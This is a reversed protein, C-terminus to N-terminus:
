SIGGSKDKPIMVVSNEDHNYAIIIDTKKNKLLIKKVFDSTTQKDDSISIFCGSIEPSGADQKLKEDDPSLVKEFVIDFDGSRNNLNSGSLFALVNPKNLKPINDEILRKIELICPNSFYVKNVKSNQYQKNLHLSFFNEHGTEAPPGLAWNYMDDLSFFQKSVDSNNMTGDAKYTFIGTEWKETYPDIVLAVMRQKKDIGSFDTQVSLDYDSLFIKLGPHSHFWAVMVLEKNDKQKRNELTKQLKVSIKAGFNLKYRSFSADDGPEIFDELSIDFKEPDNPNTDWRGILYGGTENATTDTDVAKVSDEFFRYTKIICNREFYLKKVRTDDWEDALDLELFDIGAKQRVEFLGKGKFQSNQTHTITIGGSSSSKTGNVVTTTVPKINKAKLAKAKIAKYYVRAGFGLIVLMIVLLTLYLYPFAKTPWEEIEASLYRVGPKLELLKKEVDQKSDLDADFEYIALEKSKEAETTSDNIQLELIKDYIIDAKNLYKNKTSEFYWRTMRKNEFDNRLGLYDEELKLINNNIIGFLSDYKNKIRKIILVKEKDFYELLNLIQNNNQDIEERAKDALKELENVKSILTSFEDKLKGYRKLGEDQDDKIFDVKCNHQKNTLTLNFNRLEDLVEETGSINERNVLKTNAYNTKLMEVSDLSITELSRLSKELSAIEDSNNNIRIFIESLTNETKLKLDTFQNNLKALLDQHLKEKKAWDINEKEVPQKKQKSKDRPKEKKEDTESAAVEQEKINEQDKKKEEKIYNELTQIFSIKIERCDNFDPAKEIENKLEIAKETNHQSILEGIINEYKKKLEDCNTKKISLDPILFKWSLPDNAIYEFNYKNGDATVYIFKLKIEITANIFDINEIILASETTKNFILLGNKFKKHPIEKRNKFISICNIEQQKLAIAAPDYLPKIDKQEFYNLYNEKDDYIFLRNKPDTLVEGKKIWTAKFFVELYDAKESHYNLIPTVECSIKGFEVTQKKLEQKGERIPDQSFSFGSFVLLIFLAIIPKIDRM